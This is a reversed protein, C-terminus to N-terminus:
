FARGLLSLLSMKPLMFSMKPLRVSMKSAGLTMKSAGYSMKPQVHTWGGVARGGRLVGWAGAM